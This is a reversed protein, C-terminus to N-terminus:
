SGQANLHYDVHDALAEAISSYAVGAEVDDVHVINIMPQLKSISICAIM